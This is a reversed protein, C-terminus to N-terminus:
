FSFGLTFNAAKSFGRSETVSWHQSYGPIGGSRIELITLRQFELGFGMHMFAKNSVRFSVGLSPNLLIGMSEFSNSADFSYGFVMALYPSNERDVFNSRFDALFSILTAEPKPYRRFGLGGGMSFFPNFQFGNIFDLKFRNLGYDGMGAGYGVELMGKYGRELGDGIFSQKETSARTIKEIEDMRYVLVSGDSTELKLSEGPTQEVISGYVKTGNKLHILDQYGRQAFVTMTTLVLLILFAIKKM